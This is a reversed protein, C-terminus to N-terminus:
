SGPPRPPGPRDPRGNLEIDNLPRLNARVAAAGVAALVLVIAAGVALDFLMLRTTLADINGIDEAVVIVVQEPTGDVSVTQTEATVRWTNPGSQAASSFVPAIDGDNKGPWLGNTPLQPLPDSNGLGFGTQAWTLQQGPAQM